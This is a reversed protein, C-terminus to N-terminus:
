SNDDDDPSTDGAHSAKTRGPRPGNIGGRRGKVLSVVAGRLTRLDQETMGMRHFINRMNRIMVPKKDAPVFFGCRDLEGEFYDFFSLVGERTPPPSREPTSFLLSAGNVKMWEYGILLVAQALNLSAFAPNVPFTVVADALAIADNDLGSRERGFLIGTGEGNADRQAVDAMAEDAGLIRKMQGRERATTALVYHLDAIAAEVDPYVRAANIVHVAGAAAAEAQANPFADRPAVLRLDSLGFNAMARAAMGINEGLQPAVLIIAPGGSIMAKSRDTGAM